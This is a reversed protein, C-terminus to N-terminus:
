RASGAEPEASRVCRFGIKMSRGPAMVGHDALTEFPHTGVRALNSQVPDDAWSAGKTVMVSTIGLHLTATYETVNSAAHLIGLETALDPRSDVPLVHKLYQEQSGQRKASARIDELTASPIEVQEAGWPVLRGDSMRMAVEWEIATPLRKGLSRAYAEAEEWTVGVVPADMPLRDLGIELWHEPMPAGGAVVFVLYQANSVETRDIFFPDVFVKRPGQPPREGEEGCIFEGGPVFIMDDIDPDPLLSPLAIARADAPRSIPVTSEIWRGRSDEVRIRHLGVPLRLEPAEGALEIVAGITKGDADVPRVTVRQDPAGGTVSLRGLRGQQVWMMTATTGGAAILSGVVAAIGLGRRHRLTWRRARRMTSPPRATIPEGALMARLDAAMEAASQYRNQPKKELAKHCITSLDPPVLRNAHRLEPPEHKQIAEALRPQSPADFPRRMALMEYLMVGLAFIDSRHDVPVTGHEVQEPSMYALTGARGGTSTLSMGGEIKAIGFDMLRPRGQRDIIVNSPKIDRHIVGVGHAHDLADAVEAIIQASERVKRDDRFVAPLEGTPTADGSSSPAGGLREQLTEGEVYEMVIYHQTGSTAARYIPVIGPHALGAVARAEQRLREIALESDILHPPLVKIAVKRGLVTDRALYVVGMGGEGLKREVEFEDIRSPSAADPAGSAGSAVAGSAHPTRSLVDQRAAHHSLLAEIRSRSRLDPCASDLFANRESPPLGLARLFVSKEDWVAPM